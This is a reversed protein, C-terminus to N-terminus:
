RDSDFTVKNRYEGAITMDMRQEADVHGGVDVTVKYIGPSVDLFYQGFRNTVTCFPRGQDGTHTVCIRASTVRAGRRFLEGVLQSSAYVGGEGLGAAELVFNEQVQGPFYIRVPKYTVSVFGRTEAEVSYEGDPLEPFSYNGQKDTQFSQVFAEGSLKHITVAAWPVGGGAVDTVRGSLAVRAASVAGSGLLTFVALWACHTPALNGRPLSKAMRGEYYLREANYDRIYCCEEPQARRRATISRYRLDGM